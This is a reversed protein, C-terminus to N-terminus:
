RNEIMYETEESFVVIPMKAEASGFKVMITEGNHRKAFSKKIKIKYQDSVQNDVIGQPIEVIWVPTGQPKIIEALLSRIMNLDELKLIIHCVHVYKDEMALVDLEHNNFVRVHHGYSIIGLAALIIWLIAVIGLTFTMIMKIMSDVFDGFASKEGKQEKDEIVEEDKTVEKYESEHSTANVNSIGDGKKVFAIVDPEIAKLSLANIYNKYASQESDIGYEKINDIDSIDLVTIRDKETSDVRMEVIDNLDYDLSFYFYQYVGDDETFNTYEVIEAGKKGSYTINASVKITYEFDAEYGEGFQNTIYDNIHEEEEAGITYEDMIINFDIRDYSYIGSQNNFNNIDRLSDEIDAVYTGIGNYIEYVREYYSHQFHDTNRFGNLANKNIENYSYNQDISSDVYLPTEYENNKDDINEFDLSTNNILNVYLIQRYGAYVVIDETVPEDLSFPVTCAEDSYWGTFAFGAKTPANDLHGWGLRGPHLEKQEAYWENVSQGPRPEAVSRGGDWDTTNHCGGSAEHNCKFEVLCYDDAYITQNSTIGMVAVALAIIIFKCIKFKMNEVM